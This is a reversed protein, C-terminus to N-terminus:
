LLAESYLHFSFAMGTYVSVLHDRLTPWVQKHFYHMYTSFMELRDYLDNISLNHERIDQDMYDEDDSSPLLKRTKLNFGDGGRTRPKTKAM